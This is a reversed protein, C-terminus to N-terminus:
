WHGLGKLQSVLAGERGAERPVFLLLDRGIRIPVLVDRHDGQAGGGVSLTQRLARLIAKILKM